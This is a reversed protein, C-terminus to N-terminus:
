DINPERLFKAMGEGGLRGGQARSERLIRLPKSQPPKNTYRLSPTCGRPGDTFYKERVSSAQLQENLEIASESGGVISRVARLMEADDNSEAIIERLKRRLASGSQSERLVRPERKPPPGGRETAIANIEAAVGSIYEVLEAIETSMSPRREPLEESEFLSRTTAPNSVIDVSVVRTIEEVITLDGERRTTGEAVHSLGIGPSNAEAADAITGALAHSRFYHLDAFLGSERVHVGMLTGVRDAVRRNGQARGGPHDAFVAANEYLHAAREIAARTYRRKNKSEYGLIKVGRIVGNERDVRTSPCAAIEVLRTARELTAPM